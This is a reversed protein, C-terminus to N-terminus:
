GVVRHRQSESAKALLVQLAARDAEERATCIGKIIAVHAEMKAFPAMKTFVGQDDLVLDLRGREELFGYLTTLATRASELHGLALQLEKRDQLWLRKEQVVTRRSTMDAFGIQKDGESSLEVLRMRFAKEDETWAVPAREGTAAGAPPVSPAAAAVSGALDGGGGRDRLCDEAGGRSEEAGGDGDSRSADPAPVQPAADGLSASLPGAM